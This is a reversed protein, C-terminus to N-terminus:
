RATTNSFIAVLGSPVVYSYGTVETVPEFIGFSKSTGFPRFGMGSSTMRTPPCPATGEPSKPLGVDGSRHSFDGAIRIDDRRSQFAGSGMM